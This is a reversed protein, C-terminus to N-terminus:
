FDLIDRVVIQAPRLGNQEIRVATCATGTESLFCDKPLYRKGQGGLVDYKRWATIKGQDGTLTILYRLLEQFNIVIYPVWGTNWSWQCSKEPDWETAGHDRTRCSFVLCQWSLGLLKKIFRLPDVQHMVVNEAYVATYLLPHGQEGMDTVLSGPWVTWFQERQRPFKQRAAEIAVKSIDVGCYHVNPYKRGLYRSFEGTACGVELLTMRGLRTSLFSNLLQVAERREYVKRLKRRSLDRLYDDHTAVRWSEYWEARDDPDLHNNMGPGKVSDKEGVIKM